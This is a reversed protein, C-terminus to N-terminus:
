NLRKRYLHVKNGKFDCGLNNTPTIYRSISSDKGDQYWFSSSAYLGVSISHFWMECKYIPIIHHGYHFVFQLIQLHITSTTHWRFNNLPVLGGLFLCQWWESDRLYWQFQKFILQIINTSPLLFIIQQVVPNNLNLMDHFDSNEM